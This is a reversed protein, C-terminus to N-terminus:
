NQLQQMLGATDAISWHDAIKGNEFRDIRIVSQRITRNTPEIGFFSGTHKATMTIFSAVSDNEAIQREIELSIDSFAAFAAFFSEHYIRLAALGRQDEGPAAHNICDSTWFQDLASLDRNIWVANILSQITQKNNETENMGSEVMAKRTKGDITFTMM